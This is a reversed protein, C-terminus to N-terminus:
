LWVSVFSTFIHVPGCSCCSLLDYSRERAWNYSVASSSASMTMVLFHHTPPQDPLGAGGLSDTSADATVAIIFDLKICCLLVTLEM